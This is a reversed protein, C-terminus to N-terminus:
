LHLINFFILFVRTRVWKQELEVNGITAIKQWANYTHILNKTKYRGVKTM